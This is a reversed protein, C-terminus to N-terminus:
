TGHFAHGVTTFYMVDLVDAAGYYEGGILGNMDQIEVKKSISFMGPVPGLGSIDDVVEPEPPPLFLDECYTPIDGQSVPEQDIKRTNAYAFHEFLREALGPSEGFQPIGFESDFESNRLKSHHDRRVCRSLLWFTEFWHTGVPWGLAVRRAVPSWKRARIPLRHMDGLDTRKSGSILGAVVGQVEALNQRLM